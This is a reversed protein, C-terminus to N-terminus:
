ECPEGNADVKVYILNCLSKKNFNRPKKDKGRQGRVKSKGERKKFGFGSITFDRGYELPKLRGDDPDNVDSPHENERRM